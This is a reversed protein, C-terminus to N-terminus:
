GKPKHRRRADMGIHYRSPNAHLNANIRPFVSGGRSDAMIRQTWIDYQSKKRLADLDIKRPRSWSAEWHQLTEMVTNLFSEFGSAM